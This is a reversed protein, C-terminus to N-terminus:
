ADAKEMRYGVWDGHSLPEACHQHGEPCEAIMATNYDPDDFSGFPYEVRVKFTDVVYTSQGCEPCVGEHVCRVMEVPDATPLSVGDFEMLRGERVKLEDAWVNRVVALFDDDSKAREALALLNRLEELTLGKAMLDRHKWLRSVESM